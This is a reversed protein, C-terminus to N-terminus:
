RPGCDAHRRGDRRASKMPGPLGWARRARHALRRGGRSYVVVPVRQSQEYPEGDHGAGNFRSRASPPPWTAPPSSRASSSTCRSATTSCRRCRRPSRRRQRADAARRARRDRSGREVARAGGGPRRANIAAAFAEPAAARALDRAVAGRYPPDSLTLCPWQRESRTSERLTQSRDARLHRQERVIKSGAASLSRTAASSPSIDCRAEPVVGLRRRPHRGLVRACGPAQLLEARELAVDLIEVAEGLHRRPRTAGPRARPAARTRRAAGPRARPAAGTRRAAVVGAVREDGDVRAGAAGVRLVPRLHHQAHLHAPGLPAAELDLQELDLAPSSAPM